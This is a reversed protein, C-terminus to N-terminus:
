EELPRERQTKRIMTRKFHFATQIAFHNAWTAINGKESNFPDPAQLSKLITEQQLEDWEDYPIHYKKAANFIIGPHEVLFQTRLNHHPTSTKQYHQFRARELHQNSYFSVEANGSEFPHPKGYFLIKKPFLRRVAENIGREWIKRYVPHHYVGQSVAITGEKPIGCFCFRYSNQFAWNVTPVVTLGENQFYQGILQKRYHNWLILSLSTDLYSSWDPTFVSQFGKLISLYRKPHNWIREFQYDDIFFHVGTNRKDGRFTMAQNFSILHEPRVDVPFIYPIDFLGDTQVPDFLHQNYLKMTRKSNYKM